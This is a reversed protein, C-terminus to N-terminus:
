TWLQPSAQVAAPAAAGDKKSLKAVYPRLGDVPV